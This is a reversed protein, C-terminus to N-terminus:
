KIGECRGQEEAPTIPAHAPAIRCVAAPRSFDFRCERPAGTAATFVLSMGGQGRSDFRTAQPQWQYARSVVRYTGCRRYMGQQLRYVAFERVLSGCGPESLFVVISGDENTLWDDPLAFGASLHQLLLQGVQEAPVLEGCPQQPLLESRRYLEAAAALRDAAGNSYRVFEYGQVASALM